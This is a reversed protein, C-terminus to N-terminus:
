DGSSRGMFEGTDTKVKVQDGVGVHLPVKISLGTELIADKKVGTASNGKVAAEAETVQLVVSSPLEIDIPTTEHFTVDITQNEKVYAMKEAVAAAELHFQEYTTEDMMVYDGNGERYLYQCKKKDLYANEFSESSNPRMTSSQGTKLNKLKVQIIARWNGPTAHSYDTVLLLDEGQLLVMGKRLETARVSM